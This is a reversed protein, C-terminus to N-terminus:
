IYSTNFTRNHGVIILDVNRNITINNVYSVVNLENNIRINLENCISNSFQAKIRNQSHYEGQITFDVRTYGSEELERTTTEIWTLAADITTFSQSEGYHNSRIRAYINSKRNTKIHNEKM